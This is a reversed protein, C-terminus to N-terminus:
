VPSSISDGDAPLLLSFPNPPQNAPIQSLNELISVDNSHNNAVALDMDLDGDLDACFVSRPCDGVAYDVKAAFTGDGNNKFISVCDSEYNVVALDLDLDGDLDACFVSIPGDGATYDVKPQFTGDGNNKLISVKNGVYCNAVVLDLGSDGDLDACFVSWPQGVVGYDMRTDFLPELAFTPVAYFAFCLLILIKKQM